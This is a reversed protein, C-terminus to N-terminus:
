VQPPKPPRTLKTSPPPPLKPRPRGRTARQQRDKGPPQSKEGSIRAPSKARAGPSMNDRSSSLHLHDSKKVYKPRFGDFNGETLSDLLSNAENPNLGVDPSQSGWDGKGAPTSTVFTTENGVTKGIPSPFVPTNATENTSHYTTSAGAGHSDGEGEVTLDATPVDGLAQKSYGDECFDASTAEQGVVINQTSESLRELPIGAALDQVTKLAQTRAALISEVLDKEEENDSEDTKKDKEKEVHAQANTTKEQDKMQTEGKKEEQPKVKGADETDEGDSSSSAETEEEHGNRSDKSNKEKRSRKSKRKGKRKKRKRQVKQAEDDGTEDDTSSFGMGRRRSRRNEEESTCFGMERRARRNERLDQEHDLRKLEEEIQEQERRPRQRPRDGGPARRIPCKWHPHDQSGCRKCAIKRGPILVLIDVVEAPHRKVLNRCRVHHLDKVAPGQLRVTWKDPCKEIRTATLMKVGDLLSFIEKLADKTVGVPVNKLTASAASRGPKQVTMTFTEIGNRTTRRGPIEEGSGEKLEFDRNRSEPVKIFHVFNNEYQYHQANNAWEERTLLGAAILAAAIEAPKVFPKDTSLQYHDSPVLSDIQCRTPVNVNKVVNMATPEQTTAAAAITPHVM